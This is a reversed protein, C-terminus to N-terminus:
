ISQRRNTVRPGLGIIRDIFFGVKGFRVSRGVDDNLVAPPGELRVGKHYKANIRSGGSGSNYAINSGDFRENLQWYGYAGDFQVTAAYTNAHAMAAHVKFFERNFM